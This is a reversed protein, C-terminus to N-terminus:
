DAPDSGSLGRRAAEAALEARPRAGLKTFISALLSKVAGRGVFLKEAIQPNTLGQAALQV